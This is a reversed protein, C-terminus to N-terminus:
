VGAPAVLDVADNLPPWFKLVVPQAAPAPVSIPNFPAHDIVASNRWTFRPLPELEVVVQLPEAGAHAANERMDKPLVCSRKVAFTNRTPM